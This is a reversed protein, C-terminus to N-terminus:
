LDKLVAARKQQYEETNILGEVRLQELERLRDATTRSAPSATLAENPKTQRTFRKRCNRCYAGCEGTNFKQVLEPNNFTLDNGRRAFAAGFVAGLRDGLGPLPLTATSGCHPCSITSM